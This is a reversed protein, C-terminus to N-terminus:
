MAIDELSEADLVCRVFASAPTGSQTHYYNIEDFPDLAVYNTLDEKQTDTEGFTVTIAQSGGNKYLTMTRSNGAGPAATLKSRLNHLLTKEGLIHAAASLSGNASRGVVTFAQGNAPNTSTTMLLKQRPYIRLNAPYTNFMATHYLGEISRRGISLNAVDAGGALQILYPGRTSNATGTLRDISIQRDTGGVGSFYLASYSGDDPDPPEQNYDEYSPDIIHLGDITVNRVSDFRVCYRDPKDIVLNTIQTERGSITAGVYDYLSVSNDLINIDSALYYGSAYSSGSHCSEIVCEETTNLHYNHNCNAIRCTKIRSKSSLPSVQGQIWIGNAYGSYGWVGEVISEYTDDLNVLGGATQNGRNGHLGLALIRINHNHSGGAVTKILYDNLGNAAKLVNGYDRTPDGGYSFITQGPKVTLPTSILTEVPPSYVWGGRSGLEALASLHGANSADFINGLDNCVKAPDYKRNVLELATELGNVQLIKAAQGTFSSPTDELDIFKSVGYGAGSGHIPM